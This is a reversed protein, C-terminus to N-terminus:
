RHRARAERDPAAYKFFDAAEVRVVERDGEVIDVEAEPQALATVPDDPRWECPQDM